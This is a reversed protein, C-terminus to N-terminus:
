VRPPIVSPGATPARYASFSTAVAQARHPIASHLLEITRLMEEAYGPDHLHAPDFTSARVRFAAAEIKDLMAFAKMARENITRIRHLADELKVIESRFESYKRIEEIAKDRIAPWREERFRAIEENGRQTFRRRRAEVIKREAEDAFRPGKARAAQVSAHEEATYDTEVMVRDSIAAVEERWIEELTAPEHLAGLQARRAALQERREDLADGVRRIGERLAAIWGAETNGTVHEDFRLDIGLGMLHAGDGFKWQDRAAPLVRVRSGIPPADPLGRFVVFADGTDVATLTTGEPFRRAFVLLGAYVADPMWVPEDVDDYRRNWLAAWLADHAEASARPDQTVTELVARVASRRYRPTTM